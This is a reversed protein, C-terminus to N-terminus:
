CWNRAIHLLVHAMECSVSDNLNEALYQVNREACSCRCAILGKIISFGLHTASVSSGSSISCNSPKMLTQM